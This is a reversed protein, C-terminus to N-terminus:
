LLCGFYWTACCVVLESLGIGVGLVLLLRRILVGFCCIGLCGPGSFGFM